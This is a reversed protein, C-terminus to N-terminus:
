TSLLVNEKIQPRGEEREASPQGDKNSHNM